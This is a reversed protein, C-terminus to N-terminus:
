PCILYSSPSSCFFLPLWPGAAICSNTEADIQSRYLNKKEKLRWKGRRMRESWKKQQCIKKLQAISKSGSKQWFVLLGMKTKNNDITKSPGKINRPKHFNQIHKKPANHAFYCSNLVNQQNNFACMHTLFSDTDTDARGAYKCAIRCRQRESWLQIYWINESCHSPDNKAFYHVITFHTCSRSFANKTIRKIMKLFYVLWRM